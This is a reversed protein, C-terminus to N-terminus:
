KENEEKKATKKLDLISNRQDERREEERKRKRNRRYMYLYNVAYM